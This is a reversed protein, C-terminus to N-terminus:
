IRVASGSRRRAGMAIALTCLLVTLCGTASSASLEPARALTLSTITFDVGSAYNSGPTQVQIAGLATNAGAIIPLGQSTYAGNFNQIGLTSDHAPAGFINTTEYASFQTSTPTFFDPFGQVVSQVNTSATQYHFQGSQATTSFVVTPYFYNSFVEWQSTTSGLNAPTNGNNYDFTYTGTIQSGVTLGLGSQSDITGTFDYVYQANATLPIAVLAAVLVYAVIKSNM